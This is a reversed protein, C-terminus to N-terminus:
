RRAPRPLHREVAGLAEEADEAVVAGRRRFYEFAVVVDDRRARPKLVVVPRGAALAHEVAHRTGWRSRRFRAEPVVLAAALRVVVRNRAALWTRVRSDDKVLNEAVASALAGRSAAARLLWAARPNLGDGEFLYPLVAVACGGGELAGVTAEWDVGRALGTVVAYGTEAFMRGVERALRAGLPTPDRAGAVAVPLRGLAAGLPAGVRYLILM